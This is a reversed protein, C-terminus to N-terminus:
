QGHGDKGRASGTSKGRRTARNSSAMRARVGCMTGDEQATNGQDNSKISTGRRTARNIVVMRAERVARAKLGGM